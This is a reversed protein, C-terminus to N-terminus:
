ETVMAQVENTDLRIGPGMTTSLTVSKFYKGKATSPKLRQLTRLLTALNEDLKSADFSVKGIPAHIIGTKDTRFEIRGAKRETVANAVDMTVTGVKPNPMLNRPGLVRGLRGVLGMMDPTAIAVDFDLWGGQIKEVIDDSGVFDAGAETAQVARDGKAFVLVRVSKGTGNPLAVSSRIMQDAHRPNVGLRVACDVSEDFKVFSTEKVLACADSLNYRKDRDVKALAAKYKKSM